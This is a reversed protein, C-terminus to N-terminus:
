IEELFTVLADIEGDTLRLPGIGLRSAAPSTGFRESNYFQVVSRLTPLSNDHFFPASQRVGRLQPTNFASGSWCDAM